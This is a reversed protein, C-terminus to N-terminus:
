LNICSNRKLYQANLVYNKVESCEYMCLVKKGRGDGIFEEVLEFYRKEVPHNIWKQTDLVSASFHQGDVWYHLKERKSVRSKSLAGLSVVGLMDAIDGRFQCDDSELHADMLANTYTLITQVVDQFSADCDDSSLIHEFLGDEVDVYVFTDWGGDRQLVFVTNRYNFALAYHQVSKYLEEHTYLDGVQVMAELIMENMM